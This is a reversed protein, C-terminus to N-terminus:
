QWGPNQQLGGDPYLAIQGTPIPSLYHKPDIFTRKTGAKYPMLYGDANRLVDNGPPVKAGLFIDPNKQSDMYHGKKWRLIDQYRFGDMMLEVRRERRIEWVLSTVDADKKPDVYPTGNVAVGQLGNLQLNPLGARVRLKNISNDLDAQTIPAAGLQDLEACAEAYNLYIEALWFLPADTDNYPSRENAIKPQLYKAPRYGTSSSLGGVLKGNYCLFTDITILLRKDRNARLVRLSDDGRYRPSLSIPLGDDCLYAEVASKTLGRMQTSGTTFGVVSHTLIGPVYRKYLLVEKAAPGGSLDITNFVAQYDESLKYGATFLKTCADKTQLLFKDAGTLGLETHYKRYTGEYLGIRSKLALAVDKNVTNSNDNVRLNDVAFNIDALVSDMVLARSDRPKYIVGTESIDMSRGIWPVDGYAQVLQFYRFARFFRAIGKWHNKAEDSMPAQDIRELMVNAKRIYKWDWDSASAPASVAYNAFTPAAQDDTFSTFYFDGQGSGNGFGTFMNYYEWSYTKIKDESTWFDTDDFTDPLGKDIFKTCGALTFYLLAPLIYRITKKM